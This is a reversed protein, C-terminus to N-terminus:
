VAVRAVAVPARQVAAQALARPEAARALLSAKARQTAVGKPPLSPPPHHLPHRAAMLVQPVGVPALCDRAQTQYVRLQLAAQVPRLYDSQLSGQVVAPHVALVAAVRHNGAAQRVLRARVVKAVARAVLQMVVAPARAAVWEEKAAQMRVLRSAAAKQVRALALVAPNGAAQAPPHAM